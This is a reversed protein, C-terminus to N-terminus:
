NEDLTTVSHNDFSYSLNLMWCKKKKNYLLKSASISYINDICRELVVKTSNDRVLVKFKIESNAFNYKKYANRNLLKLYVYFNGAIYEFRITKNHLDLPQNEKYNIISKTGKMFDKKSNKFEGCTGRITTSCNGSYLDNGTKFKDNVYGVLTYSLTDKENPYQNYKKYYDSTFNNYEWCYQISKNKIERTQKQLDWLIKYVDKYDILIGEKDYHECILALKIVKTM